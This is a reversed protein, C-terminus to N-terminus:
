IPRYRGKWCNLVFTEMLSPHRKKNTAAFYIAAIANKVFFDIGWTQIKQQASIGMALIDIEKMYTIKDLLAALRSAEGISFTYGNVGDEILSGACGCRNSVLVPLGAAMAENVVLGWTEYCSPLIFCRAHQYYQRLREPTVFSLLYVGKLSRDSIFKELQTRQPGDGVIVLPLFNGDNALQYQHYAELLLLFNKAPIHRGVTLLYRDPLHAPPLTAISWYDNDVVDVGYYVQEPKFRWRKFTANWDPAPCVVAEVHKYFIQKIYNVLKNRPVDEWKADDFIVVAKHREKSWRVATAGAPFAIAGALVVDPMIQDLQKYLNNSVVRPSIDEMRKEPFICIWDTSEIRSDILDYNGGGALEIVILEDGREKLARQLAKIRAPWYLRFSTHTIVIKM